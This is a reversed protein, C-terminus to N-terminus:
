RDRRTRREDAVFAASWAIWGVTMTILVTSMPENPFGLRSLGYFVPAAIALSGASSLAGALPVDDAYPVIVGSSYAWLCATTFLCALSVCERADPRWGCLLLPALMGASIAMGYVLSASASAALWTAPGLATRATVWRIPETRGYASLAFASPLVVIVSAALGLWGNDQAFAVAAPIGVASALVFMASFLRNEPHRAISRIALLFFASRPGVPRVFSRFLPRQALEATRITLRSLWRAAYWLTGIGAAAAAVGLAYGVAADSPGPGMREPLDFLVDVISLPSPVPKLTRIVQASVAIYWATIGLGVLVLTAPRAVEDPIALLRTLAIRVILSLVEYLLVAWVLHAAVLLAMWVSRAEGLPEATILAAVMPAYLAVLFALAAAVTPLQYGLHRDRASIPLPTMLRDLLTADPSAALLGGVVVTAIVTMGVTVSNLAIGVGGFRLAIGEFLPGVFAALGWQFAAISLVSVIVALAAAGKSRGLASWIQNRWSQFVVRSM